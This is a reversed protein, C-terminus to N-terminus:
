FCFWDIHIKPGFSRLSLCLLCSTTSKGLGGESGSFWEVLDQKALCTGDETAIFLTVHRKVM